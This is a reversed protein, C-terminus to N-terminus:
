IAKGKFSSESIPPPAEHRAPDSCQFSTQFRNDTGPAAARHLAVCTRGYKMGIREHKVVPGWSKLFIASVSADGASGAASDNLQIRSLCVCACLVRLPRYLPSIITM